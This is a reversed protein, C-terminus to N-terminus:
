LLYKVDAIMKGCKRCVFAKKHWSDNHVMLKDLLNKAKVNEKLEFWDGTNENMSFNSIKELRWAPLDRMATVTGLYMMRGCYPCKETWGELLQVCMLAYGYWQGYIRKPASDAIFMIKDEWGAIGDFVDEYIEDAIIRDVFEPAEKLFEVATRNGGEGLAILVAPEYSNQYFLEKLQLAQDYWKDAVSGRPVDSKGTGLFDPITVRYTDYGDKVGPALVDKFAFLGVTNQGEDPIVVIRPEGEKGYEEYWCKYGRYGFYAM